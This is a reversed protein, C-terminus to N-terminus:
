GPSSNLIGSAMEKTVNSKFKSQTYGIAELQKTIAEAMEPQHHSLISVSLSLQADFVFRGSDLM